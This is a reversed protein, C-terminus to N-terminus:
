SEHVGVWRGIGTPRVEITKLIEPHNYYYCGDCRHTITSYVGPYPLPYDVEVCVVCEPKCACSIPRDTM